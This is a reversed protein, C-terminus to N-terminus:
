GIVKGAPDITRCKRCRKCVQAIDGARNVGVAEWFHGLVECPIPM